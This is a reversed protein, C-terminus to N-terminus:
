LSLSKPTSGKPTMRHTQRSPEHNSTVSKAVQRPPVSTIAHQHKHLSKHWSLVTAPRVLMGAFADSGNGCGSGVQAPMSRVIFTRSGRSRAIFASEMASIGYSIGGRAHYM